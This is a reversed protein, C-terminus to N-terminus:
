EIIGVGNAVIKGDNVYRFLQVNPENGRVAWYELERKTPNERTEVYVGKKMTFVRTYIQTARKSTGCTVVVAVALGGLLTGFVERRKM